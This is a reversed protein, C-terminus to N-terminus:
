HRVGDESDPETKERAIVIQVNRVFKATGELAFLFLAVSCIIKLPYVPPAFLTSTVEREAISDGTMVVFKWLLVILFIYAVPFTILDLTAKWREPLKSYIVDVRVHGDHLMVYGGGFFVIVALLQVNIDWAWITPARFFYRMVVEYSTILMVVPILFKIIRGSWESSADIYRALVM